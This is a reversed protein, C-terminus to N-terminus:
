CAEEDRASPPDANREEHASRELARRVARQEATCQEVSEIRESRLRIRAGSLDVFRVWRPPPRRDLCGEVFRAMELSVVWHANHSCVVFYDNAEM